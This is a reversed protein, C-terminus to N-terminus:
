WSWHGLHRLSREPDYDEIDDYDPRCPADAGDSSDGGPKAAALRTGLYGIFGSGAAIMIPAALSPSRVIVATATIAALNALAAHLFGRSYSGLSFPQDPTVDAM